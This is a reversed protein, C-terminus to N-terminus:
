KRSRKSKSGSAAGSDSGKRLKAAAEQFAEESPEEELQRKKSKRGKAGTAGYKEALHNLFNASRDQQRKQILAALDGESSGKSKNSKKNGFLKNHVGLEKAYDEAEAAEAKAVKLRAARKRKREKTYAAFAPVDDKEIAEDIIRRFRADDEVVNSVMVREYVQDLDGECEEFAVLLDDKEEDSGKYKKAFKRIADASVSDKYQERYFDSWNFGESDVISEATSGTADYRKRRAPDSLVAYAFAISQFSEHAAAKQHDPVKDPHNKLAAKRYASKIQDATASRDLGLVEYPEVAPPECEFGADEADSM